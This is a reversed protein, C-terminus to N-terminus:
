ANPVSEVDSEIAEIWRNAAEITFLMGASEPKAALVRCHAYVLQTARTHSYPIYLIRRTHTTRAARLLKERLLPTAAHPNATSYCLSPHGHCLGALYAKDPVKTCLDTKTFIYFRPIHEAGLRALVEHTQAFHMCHEEDSIDVVMALLAASNVEALTSSFSAFLREPLERIFGVTDSVLVDGGYRSLSRSTTDLTEFPQNAASLNAQTLANMITTKGANTYGVLAISTCSARRKRQAESGTAIQAFARRLVALRGDLQRALLESATEGPGRSGVIGGAQQDMELGLGRIRPRLYQLHAIEVQIRAKRSRAHLQFVNLIIAERDRVALGTYDELNRSQSPTLLADVVLTNAGFSRARDALASAVGSGFLARPDPKRLRSSEEGVVVGGQAKVLALIERARAPSPKEAQLSVTVVYCRQETADSGQGEEREQWHTVLKEWEHNDASPADNHEEVPKSDFQM